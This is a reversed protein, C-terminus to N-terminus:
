RAARISSSASCRLRVSILLVSASRSETFTFNISYKSRSACFFFFVTKLAIMVSTRLWPKKMSTESAPANPMTGTEVSRSSKQGSLSM